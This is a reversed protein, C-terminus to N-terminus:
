CWCRMARRDSRHNKAPHAGSGIGATRWRDRCLWAIWQGGWGIDLTAGFIRYRGGRYALVQSNAGSVYLMVPDDIGCQWRGIELHAVCHNCRHPACRALTGTRPSSNYGDQPLTGARTGTLVCHRRDTCRRGVQDSKQDRIHHPRRPATCSGAPPNRRDKAPINRNGRRPRGRRDRNGAAINWATGEIGLITRHM